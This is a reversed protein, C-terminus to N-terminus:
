SKHLLAKPERERLSLTLSIFHLFKRKSERMGVKEWLSFPRFTYIRLTKTEL